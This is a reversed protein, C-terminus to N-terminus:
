WSRWPFVGHFVVHLLMTSFKAKVEVEGLKRMAVTECIRLLKECLFLLVDSAQWPSGTTRVCMRVGPVVRFSDGTAYGRQTGTYIYIYICIHIYLVGVHVYMEIGIYVPAEGEAIRWLLM